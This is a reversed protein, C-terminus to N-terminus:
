GTTGASGGMGAGTTTGTPPENWGLGGMESKAVNLWVARDEINTIANVPVYLDSRFVIGKHVRIWGQGVEAVDGVDEGASDYVDWGPQVMEYEMMAM